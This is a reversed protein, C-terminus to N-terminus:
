KAAGGSSLSVPEPRRCRAPRGNRTRRDGRLPPDAGRSPAQRCISTTAFLRSPSGVTSPMTSVRRSTVSRLPELLLQLVLGEMVGQATQGVAGQEPVPELVGQGARGPRQRREGDQEQVQVIELEYIVGKAVAGAVLEQRPPRRSVPNAACRHCRPGSQPSSNAMRSSSVSPGSSAQRAASRIRASRLGGSHDLGSWSRGRWRRYRRCCSRHRPGRRSGGLPRHPSTRRWPVPCSSNRSKGVPRASLRHALAELARGIQLPRDVLVLEYQVVLGYDARSPPSDIARSASM